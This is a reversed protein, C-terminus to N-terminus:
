SQSWIVTVLSLYNTRTHSHTTVLLCEVGAQGQCDSWMLSKLGM